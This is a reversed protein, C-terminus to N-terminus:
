DEGPQYRDMQLFPTMAPITKKYISIKIVTKGNTTTWFSIGHQNYRWEKYKSHLITTDAEAFLRQVENITSGVHISKNTILLRPTLIDIKKLQRDQYGYYCLVGLSNYSYVMQTDAATIIRRVKDEKLLQYRRKIEQVSDGIIFGGVGTGPEISITKEIGPKKSSVAPFILLCVLLLTVHKQTYVNKLM